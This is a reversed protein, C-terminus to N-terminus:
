ANISGLSIAVAVPRRFARALDSQLRINPNDLALCLSFGYTLKYLKEKM